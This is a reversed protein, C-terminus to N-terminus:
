NRGVKALAKSVLPNIIAALTAEGLMGLAIVIAFTYTVGEAVPDSSTFYAVMTNTYFIFLDGFVLLTHTITLLFSLGAIVFVNKYLKSNKRLLDFVLGALFGFIARPLVSVWPVIFLANFGTSSMLAQIWSTVGFAIGYLLGGKWGKKYSGILVPLHVLSFSVGPVFSIYGAQPVFGMVAILAIMIAHFTIDQVKIGEKEKPSEKYVTVFLLAVWILLIVWFAITNFNM